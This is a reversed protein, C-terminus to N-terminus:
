FYDNIHDGKGNREEKRGGDRERKGLQAKSATAANLGKVLRHFYLRVGRVVEPVVGVHQCQVDLLDQIAGGLKQDSM